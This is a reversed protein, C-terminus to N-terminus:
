QGPRLIERLFQQVDRRSAAYAAESRGAHVGRTSCRAFFADLQLPDVAQGTKEATIKWNEIDWRVVGCSAGSVAGPLRTVAFMGDWSHVAGPYRISRVAAGAEGYRQALEECAAAPTWDDLEGVLNLLPANTMSPSWYVQSCGGYLSVHAAFKLDNKLVAARLPELATQFAVSGGRSFGMVAIRSPDIRPHGALLQLAHFADSM